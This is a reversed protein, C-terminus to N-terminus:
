DGLLEDLERERAKQKLLRERARRAGRRMPRGSRNKAEKEKREIDAKLREENAKQQAREAELDIQKQKAIRDKVLKESEKDIPQTRLLDQALYWKSRVRYKRPINKTAKVIKYVAKSWTQGKYSKYKLDSKKSKVTIRVFDGVQLQRGKGGKKREKNYNKIATKEEDQSASENPTKKQIRNYTNNVLDESMQIAERLNTTKRSRLVGFMHRQIMRNKQEIAPALKETKHTGIIKLIEKINFEGGSDSASACKKLDKIGLKQALKKIAKIVKPTVDKALKTTTYDTACLGTSKECVTVIYTEKKIDSKKFRAQTSELDNRRVFVLDFEFTYQRIPAGGTKQSPVNSRGSENTQQGQIFKLVHRKSIGVVRKKLLHFAADRSMPVSEKKDYFMKRLYKDVSGRPIVELDKYYLKGRVVKLDDKFKVGWSPCDKKFSKGSLYKKVAPFDKELIKYRNM